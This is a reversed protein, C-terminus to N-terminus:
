QCQIQCQVRGDPVQNPRKFLLRSQVQYPLAVPIYKQMEGCLQSDRLIDNDDIPLIKSLTSNWMVEHIYDYEFSQNDDMESCQHMEPIHMDARMLRIRMTEIIAKKMSLAPKQLVTM